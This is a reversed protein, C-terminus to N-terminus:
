ACDRCNNGACAVPFSAGDSGIDTAQALPRELGFALPAASKATGPHDAVVGCLVDSLRPGIVANLGLRSIDRREGNDANKM